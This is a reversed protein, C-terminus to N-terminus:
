ETSIGHETLKQLLQQIRADKDAITRKQEAIAQKQETIAQKQEAIAQEKEAIIRNQQISAQKAQRAEEKAMELELKRTNEIRYYEERAECQQRIIEDQSLQYVTSVAEQLYKNSESLMKLEEWTTSKFLAAWHDIGYRKDEETALKIQTLDLVSLRLKDSYLHHTKENMIRYTAYFEPEEKFLTFDLLGIQIAPKVNFYGDGRNLNDFARCLYLLSREPWNKHWLFNSQM